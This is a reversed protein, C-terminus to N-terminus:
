RLDHAVRFGYYVSRDVKNAPSRKSVRINLDIDLWSGGRRAIHNDDTCQSDYDNRWCSSTLEWVNGIMDHLGFTSATFQGIPATFDWQDRGEVGLYNTNEHSATEGWYFSTPKGSRAAYEWEEETPLRYNDSNKRNLWKIYEQADYWSVCVVPHSKSQSFGVSKWYLSKDQVWRDEESKGVRTCGISDGEATTRYHTEQIFKSFQGVTVEYKSLFFARVTVEHFPRENNKCSGISDDWGDVCGMRFKGAPIKIM